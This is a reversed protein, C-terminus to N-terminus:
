ALLMEGVQIFKLGAAIKTCQMIQWVTDRLWSIYGRTLDSIVQGLAQCSPRTLMVEVPAITNGCACSHVSLDPLSQSQTPFMAPVFSLKPQAFYVMRLISLFMVLMNEVNLNSNVTYSGEFFNSICSSPLSMAHDVQKYMNSIPLLNPNKDINSDQEPSELEVKVQPQTMPDIPNVELDFVKQVGGPEAKCPKEKGDCVDSTPPVLVGIQELYWNNFDEVDEKTSYIPVDIVAAVNRKPKSLKAVVTPTMEGPKTEGGPESCCWTKRFFKLKLLRDEIDLDVASSPADFFKTVPVEPLNEILSEQCKAPDFVEQVEPVPSIVDFTEESVPNKVKEQTLVVSMSTNKIDHIDDKAKVEDASANSMSFGLIGEAFKVTDRVKKKWIDVERKGLIKQYKELFSEVEFEYEQIDFFVNAGEYIRKRLSRLEFANQYFENQKSWEENEFEMLAEDRLDELELTIFPVLSEIDFAGWEEEDDDVASRLKGRLSRPVPLIHEELMFGQIDILVDNMLEETECQRAVEMSQRCYRVVTDLATVRQRSKNLGWFKYNRAKKLFETKLKLCRLRPTEFIDAGEDM